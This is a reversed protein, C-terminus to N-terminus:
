SFIEIVKQNMEVPAHELNIYKVNFLYNIGDRGTIFDLVIRKIRIPYARELFAVLNRTPIEFGVLAGGTLKTVEFSWAKEKDLTAKERNQKKQNDLRMNNRM